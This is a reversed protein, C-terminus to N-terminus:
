EIDKSIEDTKKLNVCEKIGAKERNLFRELVGVLSYFAGL